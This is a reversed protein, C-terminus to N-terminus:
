GEYAKVEDVLLEFKGEQKDGIYLSVSQIEAVNLEPADPVDEGHFTPEFDSFPLKVRRWENEATFSQAYTVREANTKLRLQYTQGDGKAHLEVGQFGTLDFSTKDYQVQAFGGNNELSVEGSFRAVGEPEESEAYSIQSNSVGGMVVDNETYWSQVSKETTFEFLTMGKTNLSLLCASLLSFSKQRFSRQLTCKFPAFPPYPSSGALCAGIVCAAM